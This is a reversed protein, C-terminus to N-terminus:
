LDRERITSMEDERAFRNCDAETLNWKVNLRFYCDLKAINPNSKNLFLFKETQSIKKM